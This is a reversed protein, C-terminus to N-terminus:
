GKRVLCYLVIPPYKRNVADFPASNVIGDHGKRSGRVASAWCFPTWTLVGLPRVKNEALIMDKELELLECALSRESWKCHVSSNQYLIGAENSAKVGEDAAHKGGM